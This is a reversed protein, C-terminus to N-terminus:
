YIIYENTDYNRSYNFDSTKQLVELMDEVGDDIWFKGTYKKKNLNKTKININIDFYDEMKLLIDEISENEFTMLGEVWRYPDLNQIPRVFLKGNELVAVENPKLTIKNQGDKSSIQVKGQLLATEFKGKTSYAKVNFETGLVQIDFDKTKVIFPIKENHEINFQGEGDLFVIRQDKNFTQPYDLKSNANVWVKSGDVLSLEVRQGSPVHVSQFIEKEMNTAKGNFVYDKINIFLSFGILLVAAVKLIEKWIPKRKIPNIEEEIVEPKLNDTWISVFYAKQLTEFEKRNNQDSNIWDLVAKKESRDASGSIYKILLEEM